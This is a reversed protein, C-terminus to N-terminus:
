NSVIIKLAKEMDTKKICSLARNGYTTPEINDSYISKNYHKIAEDYEKTEM